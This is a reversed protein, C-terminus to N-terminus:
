VNLLMGFMGFVALLLGIVAAGPMKEKHFIRAFLMMLPFACCSIPLLYSSDGMREAATDCLGALGAAVPILLKM